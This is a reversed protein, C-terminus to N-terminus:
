SLPQPDGAVLRRLSPLLPRGQNILRLRGGSSEVSQRLTHLKNARRQLYDGRVQDMEVQVEAGDELDVLRVPGNWLGLKEQESQLCVIDLEHHRGHLASLLEPWDESSAGLDTVVIVRAPDGATWQTLNPAVVSHTKDDVKIDELLALLRYWHNRSQGLPMALESQEGLLVLGFSDGARMAIYSLTALILKAVEFRSPTGGSEPFRMSASRDLVMWIHMPTEVQAQRVLLKDSRAYAAWDVHRAEDGHNYARYQAFELGPGYRRGLHFGIGVGAALRRSAFQLNVSASLLESALM